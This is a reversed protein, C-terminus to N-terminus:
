CLSVKEANGRNKGEKRRQKWRKGVSKEEKEGALKRRQRREQMSPLIIRILM